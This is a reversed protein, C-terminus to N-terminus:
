SAFRFSIARFSVATLIENKCKPCKVQVIMREGYNTDPKYLMVTKRRCYRCYYAEAPMTNARSRLKQQEGRVRQFYEDDLKLAM